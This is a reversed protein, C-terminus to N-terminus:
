LSVWYSFWKPPLSYIFLSVNMLAIFSALSFLLFLFKECVNSSIMFKFSRSRFFVSLWISVQTCIGCEFPLGVFIPQRIPGSSFSAAVPLQSVIIICSSKGIYAFSLFFVFFSASLWSKKMPCAFMMGSMAFLKPLISPVLPLIGFGFAPHTTGGFAFM